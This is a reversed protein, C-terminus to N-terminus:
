INVRRNGLQGCAAMVNVGKEPRKRVFVKEAILWDCFQQVDEDTPRIFPTKSCPNLPIINVKAHLPRLFDALERAHSKADNVGKIIVYEFFFNSGKQLPFALLAKQIRKMPFIHNVPMIQSRIQDNPANLSIALKLTPWNLRALDQFGDIFVTSVTIYRKAIDLGRQDSIIKISQVVNGLNDFPEGMGMFVINRINIGWVAKVQFVQGVIEEVNLNRLFGMKGTECFVCERRCGVQSSVCLTKRDGMPIIVSEIELGDALQTVFKMLDGEQIHRVVRSLPFTFDQHLKEIFAPSRTLEKVQSIDAPYHKYIERFLAAAHYKSGGYRQRMETVLQDFPISLINLPRDIMAQGEM